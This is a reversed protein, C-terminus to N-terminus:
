QVMSGECTQPALLQRHYPEVVEQSQWGEQPQLYKEVLKPSELRMKELAELIEKPHQAISKEKLTKEHQEWLPEFMSGGTLQLMIVLELMKENMWYPIKARVKTKLKGITNRYLRQGFRGLRTKAEKPKLVQEPSWGRTFPWSWSWRMANFGLKGAKDILFGATFEYGYIEMWEFIKMLILDKVRQEATFRPDRWEAVTEFHPEFILDAPAFVDTENVGIHDLFDRNKMHFTTGYTPLGIHGKSAHAFAYRVLKSCATKNFDSELPGVGPTVQGLTMAFEYEWPVGTQEAKKARTNVHTSARKALAEDPHRFLVARAVGHEFAKKLPTRIVGTEILSELVYWEGEEEDYHVIGAHSYQADTDGIRAIAASTFANGRVLVVDGPKLIVQGNETNILKSRDMNPNTLIELGSNRTDVPAFMRSAHEPKSLDHNYPLELVVDEAYRVLRDVDRVAQLLHPEIKVGQRTLEKLRNVLFFRFEWFNQVIQTREKYAKGLDYQELESAFIDKYLLRLMNTAMTQNTFGQNVEFQKVQDLYYQSKEKLDIGVSVASFDNAFGLSCFVLVLGIMFLRFSVIKMYFRM